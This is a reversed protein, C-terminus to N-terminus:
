PKLQGARMQRLRRVQERKPGTLPGLKENMEAETQRKLAEIDAYDIVIGKDAMARAVSISALMRRTLPRTM